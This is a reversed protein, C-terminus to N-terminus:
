GPRPSQEGLLDRRGLTEPAHVHAAYGARAGGANAPPPETLVTFRFYKATIPAFSITRAGGPVSAAVHFEQGNDSVELNQNSPGGGFGGRGASGTYRSMGYITQPAPFEFQIWAKQGVPAAPLLTAKAYDGDTLAALTFDGGSSTIKPQLEAFSQDAGPLRFAVVAADAYWPGYRSPQEAGQANGSGPVNQFAGTVGSPQALRGTFPKGGEVRTETWVFKKM